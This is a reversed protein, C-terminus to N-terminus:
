RADKRCMRNKQLFFCKSLRVTLRQDRFIKLVERLTENCEEPTNAPILIDDLYVLVKNFRLQSLATNIMRQFVAPANTLGFPCRLYEYHGDQSIFATYQISDENMPIHFYGSFLHLSTFYKFGALRKIHDEILPTPYQDPVKIKNLDRYDVCLRKEGSKKTTLIVRSAYASQSERIIGNALLDAVIQRIENRECDSFSRPRHNIPKDSTLTICMEALTTVGMESVNGAKCEPFEDLVDLLDAIAESGEIGVNVEATTLTNVSAGRDNFTLINGTKRYEVDFLETFNQGILVDVGL